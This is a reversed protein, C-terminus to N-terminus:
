ARQWWHWIKQRQTTSLLSCLNLHGTDDTLAFYKQHERMATILVEDPVELFEDDFKGVIPFPFEVLNTVISILDDDKLIRSHYEKACTEIAQILAQKRKEIDPIIGVSQAVEVYRDASEIKYKGPHMFQHGFLYPSSKINGVKFNLCKKEWCDSWLFLPGPL